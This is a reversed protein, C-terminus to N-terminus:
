SERVKMLDDMLIDYHQAIEYATILDPLRDGKEYNAITSPQYGLFEGLSEQTEKNQIRYYRINGGVIKKWDRLEQM